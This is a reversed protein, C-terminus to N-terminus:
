KDVGFFPRNTVTHCKPGTYNQGSQIKIKETPNKAKLFVKGYSKQCKLCQLVL